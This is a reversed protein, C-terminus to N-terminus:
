KIKLIEEIRSEIEPPTCNLKAAIANLRLLLAFKDAGTEELEILLSKIKKAQLDIIPDLPDEIKQMNYLFTIKILFM